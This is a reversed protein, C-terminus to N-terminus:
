PSKMPECLAREEAYGSLIIIGAEEDMFGFHYSGAYWSVDVHTIPKKLEVRGSLHEKKRTM